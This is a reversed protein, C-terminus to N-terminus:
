GANFSALIVASQKNEITTGIYKVKVQDLKNAWENYTFEPDLWSCPIHKKTDEDWKTPEYNSPYMKRAEEETSAYCIFSDYTDYDNNISQSVKYINM